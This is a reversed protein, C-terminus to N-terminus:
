SFVPSYIGSQGEEFRLQHHICNLQDSVVHTVYIIQTVSQHGIQDILTLVRNQNARDLGQCPEDLILLAPSKVLARAILVLRQQGYSLQTFDIRSINEIELFKMWKLAIEEQKKSVAQYLGITDFFGSFVVRLVSVSERYQFQFEPSVLGIRRKIDWISEGTGRQKGFMYIENSYVQLNDATILSLLTSKGAGNPGVIKWNDGNRVTWNFNELVVKDGYRVNINRMLIVADHDRNIKKKQLIDM